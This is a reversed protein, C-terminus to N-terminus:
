MKMGCSQENDFDEIKEKYGEYGNQGLNYYISLLLIENDNANPYKKYINLIEESLKADLLNKTIYCSMEFPEVYEYDDDKQYSIIENMNIIEYITFNNRICLDLEDETIGRKTFIDETIFEDLVDNWNLEENTNLLRNEILHISSNLTELGLDLLYQKDM